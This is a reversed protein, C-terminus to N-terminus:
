LLTFAMKFTLEASLFVHQFEFEFRGSIVILFYITGLRVSISYVIMAFFM